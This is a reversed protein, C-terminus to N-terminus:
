GLHSDTVGAFCDEANVLGAFQEAERLARVQAAGLHVGDGAGLQVLHFALDALLLRALAFRLM